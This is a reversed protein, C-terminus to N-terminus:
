APAEKLPPSGEADNQIQCHMLRRKSAVQQLWAPVRFEVEKQHRKFISAAM